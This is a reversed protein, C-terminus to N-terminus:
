SDFVAMKFDELSSTIIVGYMKDLNSQKALDVFMNEGFIIDCYSIGMTFSMLDSLDNAKIKRNFDRSRRDELSFYTYTAPLRKMLDQLDNITMDQRFITFGYKLFFSIGRKIIFEGFFNKLVTEFQAKKDIKYREKIRVKEFRDTQEKMYASYEKAMSISEPTSFITKFTELSNVKNLRETKAEESFDGKISAEMGIIGSVGKRIIKSQINIRKGIRELFLNEIEDDIIWDRFPAITNGQSLEFMFDLLKNRSREDIRKLTENLNILSIVIMIEKNEIKKKLECVLDYVEGAGEHWGKSLLIWKNQDLYIIKM